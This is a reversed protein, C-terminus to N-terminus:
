HWNSAIEFFNPRRKSSLYRGFYRGSRLLCKIREGLGESSVDILALTNDINALGFISKGEGGPSSKVLFLASKVVLDVTWGVSVEAM